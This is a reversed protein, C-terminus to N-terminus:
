MGKLDEKLARVIDALPLNGDDFMIVELEQMAKDIDGSMGHIVGTHVGDLQM